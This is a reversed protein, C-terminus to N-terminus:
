SIGALNRKLAFLETPMWDQRVEGLWVAMRETGVLCYYTRTESEVPRLSSIFKLFNNSTGTSSTSSVLIGFKFCANFRQLELLRLVYLCAGLHSDLKPGQLSTPRPPAEKREGFVQAM